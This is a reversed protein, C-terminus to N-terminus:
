QFRAALYHPEQDQVARIHHLVVFARRAVANQYIIEGLEEEGAYLMTWQELFAPKAMGAIQVASHLGIELMSSIRSEEGPPLIHLLRQHSQLLGSDNTCCDPYSDRM